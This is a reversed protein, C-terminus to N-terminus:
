PKEKKLELGYKIVSRAKKEKRIYTKLKNIAYNQPDEIGERHAELLYTILENYIDGFGLYSYKKATMTLFHSYKNLDIDMKGGVVIKHEEEVEALIKKLAKIGYYKLQPKKSETLLYNYTGYKEKFWELFEAPSNHASNVGIKHHAPCLSILDLTLWRMNKNHRSFIHHTNLGKEMYRGCVQCRYGDRRLAIERCLKDLKNELSKKTIKRMEVLYIEMLFLIIYSM